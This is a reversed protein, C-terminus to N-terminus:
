KEKYLQVVVRGRPAGWVRAYPPPGYPDIGAKVLEDAPIYVACGRERGVRRTRRREATDRRNSLPQPESVSVAPPKGDRTM